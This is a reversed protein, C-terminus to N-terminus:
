DHQYPSYSAIKRLYLHCVQSALCSSRCLLIKSDPSTSWTQHCQGCGIHGSIASAMASHLSLKSLTLLPLFPLCTYNKVGLTLKTQWIYARQFEEAGIAAGLYPRGTDTIQVGTGAFIKCAVALHQPKVVLWTKSANPHYGYLPGLYCLSQWWQRVGPLLGGAASDDAYWIQCVTRHAIALASIIPNVAIAYVPMALPDGQTTGELSQIIEGHVYLSAPQRYFNIVIVSVSPCLVQVNRLMVRRNLANFANTADVLLIGHCEEEKFFGSKAHIAAEAGSEHGACM